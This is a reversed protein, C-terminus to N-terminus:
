STRAPRNGTSRTPKRPASYTSTSRASTRRSEPVPPWSIQPGPNLKPRPQRLLGLRLREFEPLLLLQVPRQAPLGTGSERPEPRLRLGPGLEPQQQSRGPHRSQRPWRPQRPQGPQRRCGTAPRSAPSINPSRTAGSTTVSVNFEGPLGPETGPPTRGPIDYPAGLETIVGDGDVTVSEYLMAQAGGQGPAYLNQGVDSQKILLYGQTQSNQNPSFLYYDTAAGDHLGIVARVSYSYYQGNHWIGAADACRIDNRLVDHQGAALCRHDQHPLRGLEDM